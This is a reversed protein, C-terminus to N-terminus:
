NQLCSDVTSEEWVGFAGCKKTPKVYTSTYGTPCFGDNPGIAAVTQGYQADPWQMVTGGYNVDDSNPGDSQCIVTSFAKFDSILSNRTKYFVIDDFSSSNAASTVFENDFVATPITVSDNFTTADNDMEHSDSSRPNQSSSSNHFAGYGNAGHSIIVFIADSTSTQVGDLAIDKVTIINQYNADKFQPSGSKRGTFETNVIYSFKNGFGDEAMEKNLGLSIVPLMGYVLKTDTTSQYIGDYPGTSPDLGHCDGEPRAAEIGYLASSKVDTIPAPCPLVGKQRLHNGMAHYITQIRDRTIKEKSNHGVDTLATLSASLLISTVILVIALEILTFGTKSSNNNFLGLHKKMTKNKIM